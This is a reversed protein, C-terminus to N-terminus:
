NEIKNVRVAHRGGEFDTTLFATVIDQALSESVYKQGLAIVNADNHKRTMVAMDENLCLACRVNKVKNAVMSVGIGTTCCIVGRDCEGDAVSLAAKRAFDPYDCRDTTYTGFDEVDYGNEVLFNKM